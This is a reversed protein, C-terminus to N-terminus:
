VPPNEVYYTTNIVPNSTFTGGTGFLMGANWNTATTGTDSTPIRWAYQYTGTQTASVKFASCSLFMSRYCNAELTTAPLEPATALSTCSNFMSSYCNSALTTAPLEPATTLSTCGYFMSNYCNSALTTAPLEPATTLSTCEYFMNYYCYAALTTAPLEPAATLSTCSYFMGYYCREAMTPHGGLAVTEWDLLNEINGVCEIATGTLVWRRATDSSGTIVTNGTGRLYLKNGVSNLTTTGNWETWTITDTSYHLTGDWNKTGNYVGLTFPSASQFTLYTTPPPSPSRFDFARLRHKTASGAPRFYPTVPILPIVEIVDQIPPSEDPLVTSVQSVKRGGFDFGSDYWETPKNIFSMALITSEYRVRYYTLGLDEETETYVQTGDDFKLLTVTRNGLTTYPLNAELPTAAWTVWNLVDGVEVGRIPPRYYAKLPRTAM